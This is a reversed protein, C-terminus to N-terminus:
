AIPPRLLLDSQRSVIIAPLFSIPQRTRFSAVVMSQAIPCAVTSAGNGCSVNLSCTKDCNVSHNCAPDDCSMRSANMGMNHEGQSNEMKHHIVPGDRDTTVSATAIVPSALVTILIVFVCLVWGFPSPRTLHKNNLDIM